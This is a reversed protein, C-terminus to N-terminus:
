FFQFTYDVNARWVFHIDWRFSKMLYIGLYELFCCDDKKNKKGKVATGQYVATAKNRKGCEPFRQM